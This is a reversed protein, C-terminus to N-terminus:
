KGPSWIVASPSQLWSIWLCKSRPLFAIVFRSLKNFLLPMVKNVFTCGTLAITKGTTMYSHSHQVMFLVSCQLISAKSGHHQLLSKLTRQCLSILSTLGWPFWGQIMPLVSASASAGNNQGGSTFARENSFVQISPFISPLFLLPCCLVLRNLPMVLEISMLKLLSRSITFSLSAQSSCDIPNCLTLCSQAVLCCCCTFTNTAWDHRVRQSRMSQLGGPEKNVVLHSFNM